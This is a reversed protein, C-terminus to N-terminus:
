LWTCHIFSHIFTRNANQGVCGGSFLCLEKVCAPILYSTVVYSSDVGNVVKLATGEQYVSKRTKMNYERIINLWFKRVRVVRSPINKVFNNNDFLDM